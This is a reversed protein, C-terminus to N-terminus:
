SRTGTMIGLAAALDALRFPGADAAALDSRTVDNQPFYGKATTGVGPDIVVYYAFQELDVTAGELSGPDRGPTTLDVLVFADVHPRGPLNSVFTPEGSADGDSHTVSETTFSAPLLMLLASTPLQVEREGVRLHRTTADLESVLHEALADAVADLYTNSRWVFAGNINFIKPAFAAFAPALQQRLFQDRTEGYDIDPYKESAAGMLAIAVIGVACGVCVYSWWYHHGDVITGVVALIPLPLVAVVLLTLPFAIRKTPTGVALQATARRDWWLHVSSVITAQYGMTLALATVGTFAAPGRGAALGRLSVDALWDPLLKTSRILDQATSPWDWHLLLLAIDPAVLPTALRLFWKTVSRNERLRLALQFEAEQADTFVRVDPQPEDRQEDSLRAAYRLAALVVSQFGEKNTPYSVHAGLSSGTNQAIIEVPYATNMAIPGASVPDLQSYVNLWRMNPRQRRIREVPDQGPLRLLRLASGVTIFVECRPSATAALTEAAVVSGQSHAVVVVRDCQESLWTLDSLCRARMAAFRTESSRLVWADGVHGTLIGGLAAAMRKTGPLIRLVVFVAVLLLPLVLALALLAGLAGWVFFVIDDITLVYLIALFAVAPWLLLQGMRFMARWAMVPSWFLVQKVSPPAFSEAWWCEALILRRVEEADTWEAEVHRPEDPKETRTLVRLDGVGHGQSWTRMWSILPDGMNSLTMGPAQKGIGHVFLVGM